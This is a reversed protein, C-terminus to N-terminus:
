SGYRIWWMLMLLAGIGFFSFIASILIEQEDRTLFHARRPQPQPAPSLDALNYRVGDEIIVPPAERITIPQYGTTECIAAWDRWGDAQQIDCSEVVQPVPRLLLTYEPIHDGAFTTRIGYEDIAISIDSPDTM